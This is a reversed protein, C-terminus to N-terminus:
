GVVVCYITSSGPASGFTLSIENASVTAVTCIVQGGTTTSYVQVLPYSNNLNHTVDLTTSSGNGIAGSNYISGFGLSTKAAAVSTANTGGNAISVPTSLSITNGSKSLGTGATIEGAGSFQTWQINSTGYASWASDSGPVTVIWGSGANVTGAEVFVFAGNPVNSGSMATARSVSLNTTNSTVQYLGNGPESSGASGTGSSAPSDKILIYDNVAPSQGDLTTGSIVTVSGSVITYTETGVSAAVASPKVNIGAIANSMATTVFATTAVQTTNTGASATPASPTGTMAPSGPPLYDTNSVASNFGGSGNGKLISTGSTAPAYDTGSVANSFGGSGSGKLISTGSTAPAYDTGSVAAVLQNSSSKLVSGSTVSTELTIAPTSTSTAVTGQFGNATVVSVSTVTGGGGGSGPYVWASGTYYGLEGLTSDYYIQGTVPSSPASALVHIVPHLFENQAMDLPTLITTAM